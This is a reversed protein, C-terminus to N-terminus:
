DIALEADFQKKELSRLRLRFVWRGGDVSLASALGLGMDMSSLIGACDPEARSCRPLDLAASPRCEASSGVLRRWSLQLYLGCLWLGRRHRDMQLLCRRGAHRRRTIAAAARCLRAM